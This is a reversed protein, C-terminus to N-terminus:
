MLPTDPPQIGLIGLSAAGPGDHYAHSQLRVTSDSGTSNWPAKGTEACRYSRRAARLHPPLAPTHSIINVSCSMLCTLDCSHVHNCHGYIKGTLGHLASCNRVVSEACLARDHMCCSVQRAEGDGQRCPRCCSM